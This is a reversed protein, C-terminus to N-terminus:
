PRATEPAELLGRVLGPLDLKDLTVAGDAETFVHNAVFRGLAAGLRAKQQPIIATHPIPLGLPRRFLATIAFWDAIGGVMSAEAGAQVYGLLTGHHGVATVVIFLVTVAGLLATARRRAVALAHAREAPTEHASASVPAATPAPAPDRGGAMNIVCGVGGVPGPGGPIVTTAAITPAMPWAGVRSKSREVRRRAM